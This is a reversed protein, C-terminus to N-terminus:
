FHPWSNWRYRRAEQEALTDQYQQTMRKKYQEERYDFFKEIQEVAEDLGIEAIIEDLRNM